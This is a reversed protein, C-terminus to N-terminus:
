SELFSILDNHVIAFAVCGDEEVSELTAAM